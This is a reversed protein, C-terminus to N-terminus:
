AGRAILMPLPVLVIVGVSLLITLRRTKGGRSFSLAAIFWLIPAFPAAWFLIQQLAGGISGSGAAALANVEAYAQAITLWGWTYLLYLGGYVGLVVLAANSMQQPGADAVAEPEPAEAGPTAGLHDAVPADLADASVDAADSEVTWGRALSSERPEPSSKKQM